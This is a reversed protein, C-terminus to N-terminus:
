IRIGCGSDLLVDSTEVAKLIGRLYRQMSVKDGLITGHYVVTEVITRDYM